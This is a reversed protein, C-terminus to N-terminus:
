MGQGRKSAALVALAPTQFLLTYGDKPARMVYETAIVGGGGTKNDVIVTQGLANGLKEAMFRALVDTGGGAAFPVVLYIPQ